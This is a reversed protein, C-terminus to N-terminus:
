SCAALSENLARLSSKEGSVYVDKRESGLYALPVAFLGGRRGTSGENM